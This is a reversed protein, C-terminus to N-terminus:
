RAKRDGALFIKYAIWAIAGVMAVTALWTAIRVAVAVVVVIGLFAAVNLISKFRRQLPRPPEQHKRTVHLQPQNIEAELERLRIAHERAQLEQERRRLDEDRNNHPTMPRVKRTSFGYEM